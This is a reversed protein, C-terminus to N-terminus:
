TLIMQCMKVKGSYSPFIRLLFIHNYKITTNREILACSVIVITNTRSKRDKAFNEVNVYIDTCGDREYKPEDSFAITFM